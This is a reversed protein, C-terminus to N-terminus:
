LAEAYADDGGLISTMVMVAGPDPRRPLWYGCLGERLQGREVARRVARETVGAAKLEDIDMQEHDIQEFALNITRM